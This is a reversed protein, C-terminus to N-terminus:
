FNNNTIDWKRDRLTTTGFRRSTGFPTPLVASTLIDCSQLLFALITLDHLIKCVKWTREVIKAVEHM